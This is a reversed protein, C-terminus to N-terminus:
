LHYAMGIFNMGRHFHSFMQRGPKRVQQNLSRLDPSM